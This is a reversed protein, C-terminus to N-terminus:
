RFNEVLMLDSGSGPEFATYLLSRGDPSVSLGWGAEQRIDAIRASKGTAFSLLEVSSPMAGPIFYIGQEVVAFNCRWVSQLVQTEDGGKVGVKWLTCIEGEAYKSYFVFRGDSSEVTMGIAAGKRTLQVADREHGSSPWPMRWLQDEGSRKSNFYMWNGDRAWGIPAADESGLRKPKGGDSSIVYTRRHGEQESGFFIWRGDPSWRPDATYHTGGLSTLQVANSGDSNCVWIEFSGSRNSAFAIRKGDPSYTPNQEWRTSAILKVAPKSAKTQPAARTGGGLDLRWIDTDVSSHAYALRGTRSIAPQGVAEGAFALRQPKGARWGRPSLVMKSLSPSHVSGSTLVIGQGDETWAPGWSAGDFTVRKPQGKPSLDESLELIYLDSLQGEFNRSFVVARGDPSVAPQQDGYYRGLNQPPATLKRMEGGEVSVLFLASPEGAPEYAAVLWKGNPFWSLDRGRWITTSGSLEAVKREPGGIAPILFIAIKESSLVRLFAIFRGDPSWAPSIDDAPDSTLRVPPETGILKVYIDENNQKPGDWVFAVQNGDPSFTPLVEDGPYSTLPVPVLAAAPTGSPRTLFWVTIGAVVVLGLAVVGWPLGRRRPAARHAALGGSESEEKLEELALKVDGMHQIRREPSKRLCRAILKELEPPTKPVVTSVPTPERELIASLTSLKTEGQFARRGTTMEYLVSGFSFIDSRADLHKGQAQEPSMYAVTGVIVGEETRPQESAQITATQGVNNPATETLKALGFDLLKILGHEDVMINSPKLDRHVIGASHARALADAIQIAYKLAQQMQLGKRGILQDLTKGAVYEMAIFPVAGADAIDYVHVINPHNLASAAKAELVFRKRREPDALREAPLTKLAVFRELRTDRAKWVVGMGGQGLKELVRYHSIIQGTLPAHIESNAQSRELAVAQAAVEIAPSELFSGAEQQSALLSRVERELAEDGACALRLFADREERPRELVLQFLKDVQKFRQPDM